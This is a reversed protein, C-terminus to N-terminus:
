VKKKRRFRYIAGIILFLLLVPYVAGLNFFSYLLAKLFPM